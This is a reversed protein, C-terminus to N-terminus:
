TVHNLELGYFKDELRRVEDCYAEMKPDRCHSNKMVQDIVLQSDGRADLRRVGLEIAIRLGNVLSEYGAVNNSAPFHLRLVYRLHKGLPSIFLLGARAGTKMLSGDFFMIWLEPQIPATPLQTDVWEAVFDALVQSKIAKQPAFSITEGMIKVAWKAIRGSAERCQIIEGLPFSSVVTVPHSEFYHRLKQRTLIVAYLLKQIQPYRIKTESLVESIFYVPRQVLLAHGEEQREVVIAASVVQTTAAVYILLAEGV